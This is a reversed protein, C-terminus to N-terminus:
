GEVCEKYVVCRFGFPLFFVFGPASPSPPTSIATAASTTAPSPTSSNLSSSFFSRGLSSETERMASTDKNDILHVFAAM